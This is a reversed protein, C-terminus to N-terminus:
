LLLQHSVTASFLLLYAVIYYSRRIFAILVVNSRTYIQAKWFSQFSFYFPLSITSWRRGYSNNLIFYVYIVKKKKISSVCTKTLIYKNGFFSQFLFKTDIHINLPWLVSFLFLASVSVWIHALRVEKWGIYVTECYKYGRCLVSFITKFYEVVIM